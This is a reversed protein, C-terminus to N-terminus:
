GFRGTIYDETQKKKPMTFIQQTEGFEVLHGEYFFATFDSVRAAQQMNHTVIVITYDERLEGILDEIRATSRPDLASAPEDMLLIEPGVALARAICLRQQQGGSLSLANQDLRDKVEAWLGARQLSQEAIERLRASNKEGHIRPGYVVNEFISKPFPNSKQFVMGVSRRLAVVDTGNSYIDHGDILVRGQVRTGPIIDNMRNLTRLFTSKGCGSPGIFATVKRPAMEVSVDFLAQVSGYHFDLHEVVIKADSTREGTEVM